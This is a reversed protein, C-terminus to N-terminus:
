MPEEADLTFYFSAGKGPTSEAWVRGGHREVIRAVIALGLGTGEFEDVRHLRQFVGFLKDAHRMDFGVGNDKVFIVQEGNSSDSGIQIVAPDREGSFKVANSVLNAFVQQLLLRDGKVTPLSGVSFEVSRGNLESSLQTVVDRVVPELAVRDQSLAKRGLRSFDLLGDILRGMGEANESVLRLYRRGEEPLADAYDTAVIRSFGDIARLPARLDHSVSYSFAELEQTRERVRTELDQAHEALRERMRAQSLAVALEDAVEKAIELMEPSFQPSAKQVLTLLGVLEGETILPCSASSRFGVELLARVAPADGNLKSIDETVLTEGRRLRELDRVVALPVRDGRAAGVDGGESDAACIVLDREDLLAVSVRGVGLLPRLRSVAAEAIEDMSRAALIAHQIETLAALREQVRRRQERLRAQNLAVALEDAVERAIELVEPAFSDNTTRQFLNLTGLVEGDALLPISASSRMGQDVLAVVNPPPDPILTLDPTLHAEGARLRDPDGLLRVPGRLGIKGKHRGDDADYAFIVYEESEWDILTVTARAVALAPRLRTVTEDAIEEMSRATLVAHQIERLSRLREAYMRLQGEKRRLETVDSVLSLVHTEGNTNVPALRIEVPFESGDKRRARLDLGVGMPRTRPRRAFDARHGAHRERVHDPVLLDVNKGLLEDARYGFMQEAQRNVLEIRGEADVMLIGDPASEILGRLKEASASLEREARKQETLDRVFGTFLPPGEAPVVSIALEVPFETGDAKLGTIEIRKGLVKAEGTELYKAFGRYHDQRLSAPVLLEAMTSGVADDRSYGFIREASTNFEVIRGDADITIVADLSADLVARAGAEARQREMLEKQISFLLGSVNQALANVEAPGRVPVPVSLPHQESARLSASLRRVPEVLNRYVLWAALLFAALAIGIIALQHRELRSGAALAATKEKGVYLRWGAPEIVSEAYFRRTGDPDPRELGQAQAFPTGTLSTGISRRPEISRAVVTRGDPSTVLFETPEGGGYVSALFPGVSTLEVFAAVVGQRQPMPASFLAVETQTADDAVPAILLPETLARRLWAAEGYAHTGGEAPLSSCAVTGDPRVVDLHSRDPGALGSFSLSCGEPRRLVGAIQPNAALQGVTAQILAAGDSLQTSAHEAAFRVDVEAAHRGDRTTQVHVYLVAAFAGAVTLAVLLLFHTRLRWGRVGRM